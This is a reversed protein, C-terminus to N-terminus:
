IAISIKGKEITLRGIFGSPLAKNVYYLSDMFRTWKSPSTSYIHVTWNFALLSIM